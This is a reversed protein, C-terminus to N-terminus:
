TGSLSAVKHHSTASWAENRLKYVYTTNYIERERGPKPSIDHVRHTSDKHVMCVNHVM